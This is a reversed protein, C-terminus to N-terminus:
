SEDQWANAIHRLRWGAVAVIDYRMDYQALHPNHASFAAAAASIRRRNRDTVAWLADDISKRAKVEVFAILRGRKVVIDIEGNPAKFRRDLISFGKLRLFWAALHEARRGANEARRRDASNRTM